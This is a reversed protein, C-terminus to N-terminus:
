SFRRRAFDAVESLGTAAALHRWAGEDVLRYLRRALDHAVAGPWGAPLVDAPLWPDVLGARRLEHVALTRVLFAEGTSPGAHCLAELGAYRDVFDRYGAAAEDLGLREDVEPAALLDHLDDFKALAVPIRTALELGSTVEGVDARSDGPQAMVGSAFPAFGHWRLHKAVLQATGRDPVGLEVMALTWEGDWSPRDAHYIRREAVEFEAVGFDTLRYRSRRGVRESEFWGEGTLRNVSTRILRDSFGFPEALAILDGLWIEGGVPVISDGFITVLVSRASIDPRDGFARAIRELDRGGEMDTAMGMVSGLM